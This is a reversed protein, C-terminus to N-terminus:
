SPPARHWMVRAAWRRGCAPTTLESWRRPFRPPVITLLHPFPGGRCQRRAPRCGPLRREDSSVLLDCRELRRPGVGDAARPARDEDAALGARALRPEHALDASPEVRPPAATSTPAHMWSSPAGNSGNSSGSRTSSGANRRAPSRIGDSAPTPRGARVRARAFPTLIGRVSRDALLAHEGRHDVHQAGRRRRAAHHQREVVQVPRPRRRHSQELRTTSPSRRRRPHQEEAGKPVSRGVPRVRERIRERRERPQLPTSRM